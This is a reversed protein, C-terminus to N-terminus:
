DSQGAAYSDTPGLNAGAILSAIGVGALIKMLDSKDM